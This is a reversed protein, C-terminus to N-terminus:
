RKKLTDSSIVRDYRRGNFIITPIKITRIQQEVVARHEKIIQVVKDSHAMETVRAITAEDYGFTPLMEQLKHEAETESYLTNFKVQMQVGDGDAGLLITELLKWDAPTTGDLKSPPVLKVAELYQAILYSNAFKYGSKQQPDPIPYAIYTLNHTHEFDAAKINNLLSACYHCGPDLIELATIKQNDFPAYYTSEATTFDAANWSRLRNPVLSTTNAVNVFPRAAWSALQGQQFSEFLDLNQSPVACAEGALSCSEAAQPNCTDYVFLNLGSVAVYILSWISLGVFVLALWNSWRLFFRALLPSRRVLKGAIIGKIEEDFHIDCPRFTLRRGVCYWAKKALGRYYASFIGLILFVIFAAICFM